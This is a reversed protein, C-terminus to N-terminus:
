RDRWAKEDLLCPPKRGELGAILNEAAMTAMKTRTEISASAIHPVIVVNDLDMLAPHIAPEQEFVDLGAAFIRRERLAAALAAEDITPGRSTNVVVATPKMIEFEAAGLYHHTEDILPLHVSVFDSQRLMSEKDVFEAGLQREADLNRVADHYLIRMGFGLRGKRAMAVGIRGMGAIGLTKGHVDQGLFLLPAWGRFKGARAHRDAEVVRRAAAMLLAFALDATTETLVGPTNTAMVGRATLAGVDINNFGVAYNAVIKLQPGAADLLEDDIRDTLLSLLGEVGKVKELLESRELVRDDPNVEMETGFRDRLLKMGGEPLLRTVYVRRGM